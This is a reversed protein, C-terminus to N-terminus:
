LVPPGMTCSLCLEDELLVPHMSRVTPQQEFPVGPGEPHSSQERSGVSSSAYSSYSLRSARAHARQETAGAEQMKRMSYGRKQKGGLEKERWHVTPQREPTKCERGRALEAGVGPQGDSNESSRAQVYTLAKLGCARKKPQLSIKLGM